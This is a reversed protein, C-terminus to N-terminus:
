SFRSIRYQDLDAVPGHTMEALALHALLPALTVGSHCVILYANTLHPLWGVIPKGDIPLPRICLYTGVPPDAALEPVFRRARGVLERAHQDLDSRPTGVHVRRNIDEADVRLGGPRAPRLSLDPAHAVRGLLARPAAIEAVLGPATSDPSAGAVLPVRVGLPELLHPTRWGACCLYADAHIRKGDPLRVATVRTGASELVAAGVGHVLSAGRARADAILADVAQHTHVFGEDPFYAIQAGAPVQLHAELGHLDDATITEAPYRWARLRAVRAALESRGADTDAWTVSGTPVYWDPRGFAAALTRWQRMARVSFDHYDRPLKQNANLWALSAASTGAGPRDAEVITVAIGASALANAVAAGVIGAGLVAVRLIPM